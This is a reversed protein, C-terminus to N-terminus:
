NWYEPVEMLTVGIFTWTKTRFDLEYVPVLRHEPCM